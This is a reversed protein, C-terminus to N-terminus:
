QDNRELVNAVGAVWFVLAISALVAFTGVRGISLLLTDIWPGIGVIALVALTLLLRKLM